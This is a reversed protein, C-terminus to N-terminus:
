RPTHTVAGEAAIRQQAIDFYQPEREIGIFHYGLRAAAVGTTGSGMFPDLVTGGAPVIRCLDVM